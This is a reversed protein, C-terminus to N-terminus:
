VKNGASENEAFADESRWYLAEDEDM